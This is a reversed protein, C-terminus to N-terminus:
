ASVPAKAANRGIRTSCARCRADAVVWEKPKKGHKTVIAKLVGCSVCQERIPDPVTKAPLADKLKSVATRLRNRADTVEREMGRVANGIPDKPGTWTDRDDPKRGGALGIVYEATPDGMRGSAIDSEPMSRTPYGDKVALKARARATDGHEALQAILESCETLNLGFEDARGRDVM